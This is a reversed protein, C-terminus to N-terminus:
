MRTNKRITEAFELYNAYTHWNPRSAYEFDYGYKQAAIKTVNPKLFLHVSPDAIFGFVTVLPWTLVRTQRRPLSEVADIWREFRREPDGSTGHVLEFLGRSHRQGLMGRVADRLGDERILVVPQHRTEIRVARNAAEIYEGAAPPIAM